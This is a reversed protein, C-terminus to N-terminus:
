AAGGGRREGAGRGDLARAAEAPGAVGIRQADRERRGLLADEHAAHGRALREGLHRGQASMQPVRGGQLEDVAPDALVQGRGDGRVGGGGSRSRLFRSMFAFFRFQFVMPPAAPSRAMARKEPEAALRMDFSSLATARPLYRTSDMPQASQWVGSTMPGFPGSRSGARKRDPCGSLMAGEAGGSSEPGHIAAAESVIVAQDPGHPMLKVALRVGSWSVPRPVQVASWNTSVKRLWRWRPRPRWIRGGM